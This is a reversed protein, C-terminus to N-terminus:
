AAGEGAADSEAPVAPVAGMAAKSLAPWAAAFTEAVLATGVMGTFGRRTLKM